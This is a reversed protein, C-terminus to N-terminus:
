GAVERRYREYRYGPVHLRALRPTAQGYFLPVHPMPYIPEWSAPPADGRVTSKAPRRHSHHDNGYTSVIEVDHDIITPVPHWIRRGSVHAYLGLLQDENLSQIAGPRLGERWDILWALVDPPLVYGVGILGDGSTYWPSSPALVSELGIIDDPREDVMARLTPWFEPGVVVDDQLQVLHARACRLGWEWLKGSWSWNPERDRFERYYVPRHGLQAKLRELSAAREPVWDATTPIALAFTIM